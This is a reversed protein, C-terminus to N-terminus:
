DVPGEEEGGAVVGVPYRRHEIPPHDVQVGDTEATEVSRLRREGADGTPRRPISRREDEAGHIRVVDESRHGAAAAARRAAATVQADFFRRVQLEEAIETSHHSTRVAFRFVKVKQFFQM